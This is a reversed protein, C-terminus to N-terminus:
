EVQKFVYRRGPGPDDGNPILQIENNNITIYLETYRSSGEYPKLPKVEFVYVTNEDAIGETATVEKYGLGGQVPTIEFDLGNTISAVWLASRPKTLKFKLRVTEQQHLLIVKHREFEANVSIFQYEAQEFYFESQTKEWPLVDATFHIEKDDASLRITYRYCNNRLVNFEADKTQAFSLYDKSQNNSIIPIRHTNGSKMTLLLYNIKDAGFRSWVNASPQIVEPTYFLYTNEGDKKKLTNVEQNLTVEQNKQNKVLSFENVGNILQISALQNSGEGTIIAEIKAVARNLFIHNEIQNNENVPKFFLPNDKTRGQSHTAAKIIQRKYIRGMPVYVSENLGGNFLRKDLERPAAMFEDAQISNKFSAPAPTNAIFYFDYVGEPLKLTFSLSSRTDNDLIIKGTVLEKTHTDFVYLHLSEIRDEWNVDDTAMGTESQYLLNSRSHNLSVDLFVERKTSDTNIFDVSRDCSSLISLILTVSLIIFGINKIRM